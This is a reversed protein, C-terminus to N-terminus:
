ITVSQEKISTFKVTCGGLKLDSLVWIMSYFGFDRDQGMLSQMAQSKRLLNQDHTGELKGILQTWIEERFM